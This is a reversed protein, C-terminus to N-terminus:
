TAPSRDAADVVARREATTLLPLGGERYRLAIARASERIADEAGHSPRWGHARLATTDFQVLPTDGRWGGGGPARGAYSAAVSSPMMDLAEIVLEVVRAVTVTGDTGVNLVTMPRSPAGIAAHRIGAVLDDVAIYPKAQTGDGLVELRSPDRLLKVVLDHVVGHNSRAGVTNGFRFAFARWAYLNAFGSILAEGALKAAGYHSEPLLPGDGESTPVRPPRGYVVGSSAFWLESIGHRRMSECVVETGVVGRVFDVEPHGFGGAIDTGSALHVVLRHGAMASEVGRPDAVDGRVFRLRAHGAFPADWDPQASSLDDFVTVVFGDALLSAVLAGGIFGAGGTVFVRPPHPAGTLQVM